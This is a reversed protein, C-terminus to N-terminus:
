ANKDPFMSITGYPKEAIFMHRFMSYKIIKNTENVHM